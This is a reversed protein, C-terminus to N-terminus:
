GLKLHKWISMITCLIAVANLLYLCDGNILVTYFIVPKM